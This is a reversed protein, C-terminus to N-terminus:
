KKEATKVDKPEVILKISNSPYVCRINRKDVPVQADGSVTFSYTGEKIKDSKITLKAETKDKEITTLQIEMGPPLQYGAGTLQVSSPMDDRRKLTLTVNIPEGQKVKIENPAATLMFPAKERVAMVLSRTMRALANTNVTDWVIAGGRAKRILEKETEKGDKDKIKIKSSGVVEFEGEGIPADPAATVILTGWKVGKGIVIPESTVGAPLNKAEVTIPEDHGNTRFVLIDFRERGGQYVEHSDMHIEHIPSCVLRFDPEPDKEIELRYVYQPGGQNQRYLHELRLAIVGDAGINQVLSFDLNQTAFRLQGINEGTDQATAIPEGKVNQVEM